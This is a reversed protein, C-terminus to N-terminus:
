LILGRPSNSVPKFKVSAINIRLSSSSQIIGLLKNTDDSCKVTVDDSIQQAM